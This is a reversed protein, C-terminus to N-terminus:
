RLVTFDEEAGAIIASTVGSISLEYQRSRYVGQRQLRIFMNMDGTAGMSKQKENSWQSKNNNRFRIALTPTTGSVVEGRKVEIRIEECIKEKSTGHKIHATRKVMRIPASNDTQYAVDMFYVSGDRGLILLKDWLSCWVADEGLFRDYDMKQSEWKGWECLNKDTLNMVITKNASAFTWLIFQKGAIDLRYGNAEKISDLERLFKDYPTDIEDVGSATAMAFKKNHSIFYIENSHTVISQPAICGIDFKSGDVPSFPSVGDNRWVEMSEPGFFYIFQNVEKAANTIDPNSEPNAFDLAAWTSGDAPSSFHFRGTTTDNALIYGDLFLIHTVHTPADADALAAFSGATATGRYIAGGAAFYVYTGDTAWTPKSTPVFGAISQTSSSVTGGAFTLTVIGSKILVFAVNGASWYFGGLLPYIDLSAASLLGPRRRLENKGDVYGDILVAAEDEGISVGDMNKTVPAFFNLPRTEM